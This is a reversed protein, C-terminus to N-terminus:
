NPLLRQTATDDRVLDPPLVKIPSRNHGAHSPSASIACRFVSSSKPGDQTNTVSVSVSACMLPTPSSASRGNSPGNTRSEYLRYRAGNEPARDRMKSVTQEPDTKPRGLRTQPRVLRYLRVDDADEGPPTAMLVEVQQEYVEGTEISGVFRAPALATM